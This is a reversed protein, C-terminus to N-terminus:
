PQRSRDISISTSHSDKTRCTAARTGTACSVHESISASRAYVKSQQNRYNHKNTQRDGALISAFSGDPPRMAAIIQGVNRAM